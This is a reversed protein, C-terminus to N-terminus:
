PSMRQLVHIAREEPPLWAHYSYSSLEEYGPVAGFTVLYEDDTVWWWSKGPRPTYNPDYTNWGHYEVGADM